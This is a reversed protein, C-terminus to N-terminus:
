RWARWAVHRLRPARGPPDAVVVDLRLVTRPPGAGHAHIRFARERDPGTAAADLAQVHFGCAARCGDIGESWAGPWAEPAGTPAARCPQPAVRARNGPRVCDGAPLAHGGALLWQKAAALAALADERSQLSASALAAGRWHLAAARQGAALLIGLLGLVVLAAALAIGSSSRRGPEVARCGSM